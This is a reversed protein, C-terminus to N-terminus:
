ARCEIPSLPFSGEGVGGWLPSPSLRLGRHRDSALIDCATITRRVALFLNAHSLVARYGRGRTPLPQPPTKVDQASLSRCVM